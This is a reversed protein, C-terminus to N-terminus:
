GKGATARQSFTASSENVIQLRFGSPEKFYTGLQGPRRGEREGHEDREDIGAKHLKDVIAHFNEDTVYFAFHRGRYTTKSVESLEKVQHLVLAQNPPIGIVAIGEARKLLGLNFIETYFKITADLDCTDFHLHLIRATNAEEGRFIELLNGESDAFVIGEKRGCPSNERGELGKVLSSRSPIKAAASAYDGAALLFGCRPFSDVTDRKPITAKTQSFLGIHNQGIKLFIRTFGEQSVKTLVKGGLAETYFEEARDPNMVPLVFHDLHRVEGIAKTARNM